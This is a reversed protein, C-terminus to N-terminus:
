LSSKRFECALSSSFLKVMNIFSNIIIFTETTTLLRALDNKVVGPRSRRDYSRAEGPNGALSFDVCLPRTKM